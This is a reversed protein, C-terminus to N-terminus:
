QSSARFVRWITPSEPRHPIHAGIEILHAYEEAYGRDVFLGEANLQMLLTHFPPEGPVDLLMSGFPMSADAVDYGSFDHGKPLQGSIEDSVYVIELDGEPWVQGLAALV